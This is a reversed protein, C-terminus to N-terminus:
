ECFPGAWRESNNSADCEPEQSWIDARFAEVQAWALGEVVFNVSAMYGGTPVDGLLETTILEESGDVKEAYLAISPHAGAFVPALGENGPHVYLLVRGADCEIECIGGNTLALDPADTGSGATVDGSRFNNYSLWNLDATEPVTGDEDVNTIHYAHQNWSRRGPMWSNNRDTFVAIGTFGGYQYEQPVVIDAHGDGDVDAVVPYELWTGNSHHTSELKVSGDVGSFVWLRTQDAYVVEAAGDGEFDFVSSATNGSSADDTVAQWLISGDGEMVSYRSGAAVGIEPEGDGDFDAITPPGGFYASGAGPIPTRWLLTGDTDLMRLEGQGSVVIEAKGDADFDAVAPYGDAEGNRWITSGDLRYLANGTVVEEEGDADVDVAFSCTGVNQYDVGGMGADGRGLIEGDADLIVRGVVIEPSGDHDMDSIAPVDSTGFIDGALAHTTWALNGTHQLLAVGDLLMAAIEVKGDGDVDAAAVGGTIQLSPDSWSWLEHGDDGSIARVTGVWAIGDYAIFVIDPVDVEDIDGDGDDDTLHTVIPTMMVNNAGNDAFSSIEWKVVPDFTGTEIENTCDENINADFGELAEPPCEEGTFVVGGSETVDAAPLDPQGIGGALDYESCGAVLLVPILCRM